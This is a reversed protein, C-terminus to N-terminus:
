VIKKIGLYEDEETVKVKVSIDENWNKCPLEISNSRNNIFVCEELLCM